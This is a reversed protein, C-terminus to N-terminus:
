PAKVAVRWTKLESAMGTASIAFTRMQGSQPNQFVTAPFSYKFGSRKLEPNGYKRAIDRRSKNGEGSFIFQGNAFLVIGRPLQANEVDVAWGSFLVQDGHVEIRCAGELAGPVVRM